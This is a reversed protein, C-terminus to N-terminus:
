ENTVGCAEMFKDRNFRPNYRACVNAFASAVVFHTEYYDNALHGSEALQNITEAIEKFHKRTM